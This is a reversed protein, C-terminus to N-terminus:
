EYMAEERVFIVVWYIYLLTVITAVLYSKIQRISEEPNNVPTQLKIASMECCETEETQLRFLTPVSLTNRFTPM